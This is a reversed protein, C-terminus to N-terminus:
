LRNDVAGTKPNIRILIEQSLQFVAIVQCYRARFGINDIFICIPHIEINLSLLM